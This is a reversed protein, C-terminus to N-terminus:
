RSVQLPTSADAPIAFAMCHPARECRVVPAIREARVRLPATGPQWSSPVTFSARAGALAISSAPVGDRAAVTAPSRPPALVLVDPHVLVTARAGHRAPQPSEVVVDSPVMVDTAVILAPSGRGDGLSAAVLGARMPRALDFLAENVCVHRLFPWERVLVWAGGGRHLEGAPEGGVAVHLGRRVRICNAGSSHGKWRFSVRVRGHLEAPQKHGELRLSTLELQSFPVDEDVSVSVVWVLLVLLAVAVVVKLLM